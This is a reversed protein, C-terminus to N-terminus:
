EHSEEEKELSTFQNESRKDDDSGKALLERFRQYEPSNAIQHSRLNKAISM